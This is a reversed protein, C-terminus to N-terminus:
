LRLFWLIKLILIMVFDVRKKVVLFVLIYYVYFLVLVLGFRWIGIGIIKGSM